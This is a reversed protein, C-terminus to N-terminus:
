AAPTPQVGSIRLTAGMDAEYLDPRKGVETDFADFSESDEEIPSIGSPIDEYEYIWKWYIKVTSTGGHPITGTLHDVQTESTIEGTNVIMHTMAADSYFFIREQFEPSMTSKDLTIIYNVDTQSQEASLRVPIEGATGPAAKNNNVNSYTYVNLILDDVSYNATFDWQAVDYEMAAVSTMKTYWGFTLYVGAAILLLLSAALLM